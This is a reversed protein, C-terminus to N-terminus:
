QQADGASVSGIAGTLGGFNCGVALGDTGANIFGLDAMVAPYINGSPYVAPNSGAFTGGLIKSSNEIDVDTDRYQGGSNGPTTDYYAVGAGGNDFNVALFSNPRM